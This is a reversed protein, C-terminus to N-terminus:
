LCGLGVGWGPAVGSGWVPCFLGGHGAVLEEGGEVANADPLLAVSAGDVFGQEDQQGERAKCAALRGHDLEGRDFRLELAQEFFEAGGTAFGRAVIGEPMELGVAQPLEFAGVGNEVARGGGRGGEGLQAVLVHLAAEGVAHSRREGFVRAEDDFDGGADQAICCYGRTM